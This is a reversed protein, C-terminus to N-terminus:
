WNKENEIEELKDKIFKEVQKSLIIGQEECYERYKDYIESNISLTVRKKTKKRPMKFM